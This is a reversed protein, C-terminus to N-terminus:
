DVNSKNAKGSPRQSEEERVKQRRNQEQLRAVFREIKNRRDPEDVKLWPRGFEQSVHDVLATHRPMLEQDTEEDSGQYTGALAPLLLDLESGKQTIGFHTKLFNLVYWTANTPVGAAIAHNLMHLRAVYIELNDKRNVDDARIDHSMFHRQARGRQYLKEDTEEESNEFRYTEAFAPLLLDLESGKQSISFRAKLTESIRWAALLLYKRESHKPKNGKKIM